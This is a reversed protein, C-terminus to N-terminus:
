APRGRSRGPEGHVTLSAILAFMLWNMKLSYGVYAFDLVLMLFILFAVKISAWKRRKFHRIASFLLTLPLLYYLTFGLVGYNALLETYNSHSYKANGSVLSYQGAGYGVVPNTRWLALADSMLEGRENYSTESAGFIQETRSVSEVSVADEWFTSLRDSSLVLGCVLVVALAPLLFWKRGRGLNRVGVMVIWVAAASLLILSKRSGTFLVACVLVALGALNMWRPLRAPTSWIGFAAFGLLLCLSNSHGAIGKARGSLGQAAIEPWAALILVLSGLLMAWPIVKLSLGNRLAVWLGTGGLVASLVWTNELFALGREPAWALSLVGFGFFLWPFLLPWALSLRVSFHRLLLLVWLIGALIICIRSYGQVSDLTYTAVVYLFAVVSIARRFWVTSRSQAVARGAATQEASAPATTELAPVELRNL